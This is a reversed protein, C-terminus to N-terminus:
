INLSVAPPDQRLLSRNMQPAFESFDSFSSLALPSIQLRGGFRLVDKIDNAHRLLTIPPWATPELAQGDEDAIIVTMIIVNSGASFNHRVLDSAALQNYMLNSAVQFGCDVEFHGTSQPLYPETKVDDHKFERLL